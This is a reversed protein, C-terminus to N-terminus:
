ALIDRVVEGEVDTLRREIGNHYFTLREHDLGLLHLITAHLDHVTVVDHVSKYGFEDTAGHSFGKKVGAGAMWCTFGDPNHDRGKAGKQFTPMRGFETCWVVLTNELLGRQKLDILLGATPKDLVPGHVSYQGLIDKHGDWNSTGEGGTQYAGNFLQVFRVGKEVLRRALICNKAYAARLDNIKSGGEDAGYLRLIHAPESSLDAVEPITLQMRAALEYSAIRAALQTDGPYREAHIENLRRLFSGTAKDGDATIAAPRALNRIAHTANFETGQFSAPLFGPAWNNVSNQPKGRPDPIAVYAPLSQDVSGLAYTIWSGVSPFGDLTYGTSMYNEGPGHTNTKGKMSHIFCMEDALAGLHPLLDSIMKGSKGRPRFEWPSKTLAGQEGQFTILKEKGPMPEGHRRILEPKYDFTDLQSCAGSCFIVLVNKARAEFHADRPAYPRGADIAPRIPEKGSVSAALLGQRALLHTLAIAGLGMGTDGLFRRRDMLGRTPILPFENM